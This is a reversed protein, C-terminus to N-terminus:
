PGFLRKRFEMETLEPLPWVLLEAEAAAKLVKSVTTPSVNCSVAIQRNSFGGLSELRIIERIKPMSVPKMAM